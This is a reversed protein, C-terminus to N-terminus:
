PPCLESEKQIISDIYENPQLKYHRLAYTDKKLEEIMEGFHNRLVTDWLMVTGRRFFRDHWEKYCEATNDPYVLIYPIELRQVLVRISERITIFVFQYKSLSEIIAEIYNTPCDPNRCNRLLAYDYYELDIASKSEKSFYSKGCGYFASVLTGM